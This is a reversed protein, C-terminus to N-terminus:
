AIVIFDKRSRSLEESYCDQEGVLRRDCGRYCHCRGGIRGAASIQAVWGMIRQM